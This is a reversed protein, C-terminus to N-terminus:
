AGSGGGTVGSSSSSGGGYLQSPQQYAGYPGQSYSSSSSTSQQQPYGAYGGGYFTAPQPTRVAFLPVHHGFTHIMEEVLARLRSYARNWNSLYPLYIRGSPDVYPNQGANPLQM